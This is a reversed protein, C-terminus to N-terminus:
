FKIVAGATVVDADDGIVDKTNYHRYGLYVDMAAADISQVAALGYYDVDFSTGGDPDFTVRGWSGAVTTKGIPILKTEIGGTVDLGELRFAFDNWKQNAYSAGVFLGTPVHMVSGNALFTDVDGTPVTLTTIGLLNIKFDTDHRYGGAGMVKFDGFKDSFKLAIDYTNGNGNSDKIDFSDGWTASLSFGAITPSSYKVTNRYSGDFPVDIGTAYLDSISGLSLPKGAEWANSVAWEDLDNTAQSQKGVSVMGLNKNKIFWYSQRTGTNNSDISKAGAIGLNEIDIELRYGASWNPAFQAEGTFGVYSRDNGSSGTIRGDHFDGLSAYTYAANIQGDIVLTIKRNGKRATTAELEAIRDELDACCSGGLDGALAAPAGMAVVAALAALAKKLGMFTEM